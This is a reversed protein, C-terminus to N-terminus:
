PTRAREWAARYGQRWAVRHKNWDDDNLWYDCIPPRSSATEYDDAMARTLEEEDASVIKETM